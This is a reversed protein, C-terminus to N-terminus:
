EGDGEKAADTLAKVARDFDSELQKMERARYIEFEKEAKKVAQAHSVSGSGALIDRNLSSLQKDLFDRWDRMSMPKEELAQLEAYGLFGETLLNLRQLEIESLYNKAIRVDEKTIYNGKFNTMGVMPKQNDVREYVVEAATHKHAAYHMKNQVAAFFERSVNSRPDYDISTAYIDTVQQWLNRESSRIDRIRQLLERFYRGGGNKLREDDLTFGKRIYENLRKTAWQRFQVGRRSKVRYGVSIIVDLNYYDVQYTKGDAATTAFNAVVSNRGLEGDDFVNKIHRSITSKGREFLEAMQDLTLWVTEEDFRVDVSIKEDETKFLIIVDDRKKM